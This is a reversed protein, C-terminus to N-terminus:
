YRFVVLSCFKWLPPLVEYGVKCPLNLENTNQHPSPWGCMGVSSLMRSSFQGPNLYSRHQVWRSPSVTLVLWWRCKTCHWPICHFMIFKCTGGWLVLCILVIYNKNRWSFSISVSQSITALVWILHRKSDAFMLGPGRCAGCMRLCFSVFCGEKEKKKNGHFGARYRDINQWERNAQDPKLILLIFYNDCDKPKCQKSQKNNHNSIGLGENM